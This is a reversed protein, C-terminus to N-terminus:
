RAFPDSTVTASSSPWQLPGARSTEGSVNLQVLDNNNGVNMNKNLAYLLNKLLHGDTTSCALQKNTKNSKKKLNIKFFSDM